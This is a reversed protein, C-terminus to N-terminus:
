TFGAPTSNVGGDPPTGSEDSQQSGTEEDTQVLVRNGRSVAGVPVALVNERSEVQITADVNMGPLLGDFSDIQITM